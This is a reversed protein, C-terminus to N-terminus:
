RKRWEKIEFGSVVSDKNLHIVLSKTHVPDIDSGFDILTEYFFSNDTGDAQPQGLSDILQHFTLGKLKHNKTLDNLMEDRYPYDWDEKYSWESKNFKLNPQCGAIQM